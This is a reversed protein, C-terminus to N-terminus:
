PTRQVFPGSRIWGKGSYVNFGKGRLFGILGLNHRRAVTIAGLLAAGQSVVLPIGAWLAKLVIDASIRGTTFLIREGLRGDALLEEGLAKDVANHRGIDMGSAQLRPYFDLLFAYHYAGTLRFGEVGEAVLGRLALLAEPSIVPRPDLAPLDVLPASSSGCATWILERTLSTTPAARLQVEVRVVEGPLGVAPAAHERYEVVDERDRILGAGLLHGYVFERIREPTVVASFGHEPGIEVTVLGEEAVWDEVERYRGERFRVIGIRRV